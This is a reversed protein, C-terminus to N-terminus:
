TLSKEIIECLLHGIAIHMEQINNTINSPASITYDALQKALSESEGTLLITVIGTEKAKKIANLINISNGSTSLCILVDGKKGLGEIQRSFIYEFGFDNGLATLASTDTVLSIANYANRKLRYNGVLESALHQADAASGGNGCFMIKNGAKLASVMIKAIKDLELSIKKLKIFNNSIDDFRSEIIKQM